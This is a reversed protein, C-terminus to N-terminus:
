LYCLTSNKTTTTLTALYRHSKWAKFVLAVPWRLTYVLAVTQPLWVTAPVHTLFLNWALLTM